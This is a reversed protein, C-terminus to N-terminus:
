RRVASCRRSYNSGISSLGCFDIQQIEWVFEIFDFWSSIFDISLYIPDQPSGSVLAVLTTLPFNFKTFPEWEKPHRLPHSWSHFPSSSIPPSDAFHSRVSLPAYSGTWIREVSVGEGRQHQLMPIAKCPVSAHFNSKLCIAMAVSMAMALYTFFCFGVWQVAIWAPPVNHSLELIKQLGISFVLRLCLILCVISPFPAAGPVIWSWRLFSVFGVFSVYSCLSYLTSHLVTCMQM